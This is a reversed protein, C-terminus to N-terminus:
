GSPVFVDDRWKGEQKTGNENYRMVGLGTRKEDDLWEGEFVDGNPWTLTGRGSRENVVWQGNYVSNAPWKVVGGDTVSDSGVYFCGHGHRLDEM